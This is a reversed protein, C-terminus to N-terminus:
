VLTKETKSQIAKSLIQKTEHQFDVRESSGRGALEAIQPRVILEFMVRSSCCGLYIESCVGSGRSPLIKSLPCPGFFFFFYGVDCFYVKTSEKIHQTQILWHLEMLTLLDTECVWKSVKVGFFFPLRSSSVQFKENITSSASSSQIRWMITYIHWGFPALNRGKFVKRRKKEEGRSCSNLQVKAWLTVKTSPKNTQRKILKLKTEM